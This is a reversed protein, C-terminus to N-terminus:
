TNLFARGAGGHFGRCLSLYEGKMMSYLNELSIEPRFTKKLFNLM